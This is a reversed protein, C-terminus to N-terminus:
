SSRKAARHSRQRRKSPPLRAALAAEVDAPPVDYGTARDGSWNIGMLLGDISMGPLWRERWETLPIRVGTFGAYAPVNQIM